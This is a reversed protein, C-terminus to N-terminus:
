GQSHRWLTVIEGGGMIVAAVSRSQGGIDIKGEGAAQKLTIKKVTMKIPESTWQCQFAPIIEWRETYRGELGKEEEWSRSM